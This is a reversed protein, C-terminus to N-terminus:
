RQTQIMMDAAKLEQAAVDRSEGDNCAALAMLYQEKALEYREQAMYDRAQKLQRLCGPSQAVVVTRENSVYSGVGCGATLM